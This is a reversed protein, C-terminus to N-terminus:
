VVPLLCAESIFHAGCTAYWASWRSTLLDACRRVTRGSKLVARIANRVPPPTIMMSGEHWTYHHGLAKDAERGHKTFALVDRWRYSMAFPESHMEDGQGLERPFQGFAQAEELTPRCWFQTIIEALPARVVTDIQQFDTDYTFADLFFNISKRVTELGWTEMRGAWTPELVPAVNGDADYRYGTVTGHDAACFAEMLGYISPGPGLPDYGEGRTMDFFFAERHAGFGHDSPVLGFFGGWMPEERLAGAKTIHNIMAHISGKWGVDVLGTPVHQGIGEQQLYEAALDLHTEEVEIHGKRLLPLIRERITRKVGDPIPQQKFAHVDEESLHVDEESLESSLESLSTGIRELMQEGTSASTDSWIWDDDVAGVSLCARGLSQRSVYLYRTDCRLEPKKDILREAIHRLIQGDRSLFYLREIGHQKARHLTWLVFSVLVPAIVGATVDRLHREHASDCSLTSRAQHSADALAESFGRTARAHKRLSSEYRNPRSRQSNTKMHEASAAGVM